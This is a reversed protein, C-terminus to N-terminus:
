STLRLATQTKHSEHLLITDLLRTFSVRPAPPARASWGREVVPRRPAHASVRPYVSISGLMEYNKHSSSM